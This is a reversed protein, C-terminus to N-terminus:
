VQPIRAGGPVPRMILRAEDIQRAGESAQTHPYAQVVDVGVRVDILHQREHGLSAYQRVEVHRELVAARRHQPAHAAWRAGLVCERAYAGPAAHTRLQRQATGEDDAKGPLGLGLEGLEELPELLRLEVPDAAEFVRGDLARCGVGEGAVDRGLHLVLAMRAEHLTRGRDAGPPEGRADARAHAHQDIRDLARGRDRAALRVGRLDVAHYPDRACARAGCGLADAKARAVPGIDLDHGRVGVIEGAAEDLSSVAPLGPRWAPRGLNLQLRGLRTLDLEEAAAAAPAAPAM